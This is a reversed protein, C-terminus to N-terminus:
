EGGAHLLVVGAVILGISAVKMFSMAQACSTVPQPPTKEAKTNSFVHFPTQHSVNISQVRSNPLRLPVHLVRTSTQTGVEHFVIVGLASTLATGTGAWISYATSMPLDKLALTLTSLSIGYLIFVLISPILNSFGDALNMCFTGAVESIICLALTFWPRASPPFAQSVALLVGSCGLTAAAAIASTKNPEVGETETREKESGELLLAVEEVGDVGVHADGGADGSAVGEDMEREEGPFRSTPFM